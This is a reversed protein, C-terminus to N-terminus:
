RAVGKGFDVPAIWVAGRTLETEGVGGIEREDRLLHLVTKAMGSSVLEAALTSLELKGGPLARYPFIAAHFHGCAAPSTGMPRLFAALPDTADLSVFGSILSVARQEDRDGTFSLWDRVGPFAFVLGEGTAAPSRLLSAGVVGATEAVVVLAATGFGTRALCERVLDMWLITGREGAGAEFRFFRAFDGSATLGSLLTAEPIYREEAIQYDPVSSGDTPMALSAGAAMLWEGFRVGANQSPGFAGIGVGVDNHRIAVCSTRVASGRRVLDPDGHLAGLMPEAGGLLHEEFVTGASSWGVVQVSEESKEEFLLEALGSLEIVDTVNADTGSVHLSGGAAKLERRSKLLVRVGASSIYNVETLDLEITRHGGRIAEDIAGGVHSAWNADFRGKLRLTHRRDGAVKTIEM